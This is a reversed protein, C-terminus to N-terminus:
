ILKTKGPIYVPYSGDPGPKVPAEMGDHCDEPKPAFAFDSNTIQEWTVEKGTYCSIQGMIAILTSRAMYDGNNIPTGSRIAKMYEVQEQYHANGGPNGKWNTEGTIRCRLVDAKGKTGFLLSSCEDYCGTTTRCLAYIRVGNPCEYVVTHHDFVNGYLPDTMSSRGGLGHCKIPAAEKLVWSARDLNHVLSQVVDDGSLWVFHYQTSCQWELETLGPKRENVGYPPRLYNEEITVIDGIAGDQVRKILEQYGAHYRSHLGSVLCLNKAKAMEIVGQLVKIGAPDIGHPKEVFVHKGAEIAAKAHMPHFKAANAIVVADSAAIVQKYADFGAFCNEDPVQVQDGRGKKELEKRIAERAGKVRDQFIDCIAVLRVGPDATLAQSAAGTNRGGAGIMGLKIVDSGAAHAFRSLDLAALSMAATTAASTKLFGRRNLSPNPEKM